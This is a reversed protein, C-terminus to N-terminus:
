FSYTQNEVTTPSLHVPNKYYAFVFQNYQNKIVYINYPILYSLKHPVDPVTKHHNRIINKNLAIRCSRAM